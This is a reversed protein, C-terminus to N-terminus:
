FGLLIYSMANTYSSDIQDTGTVFRWFPIVVFEMTAVITMFAPASCWQANRLGNKLLFAGALLVFWVAMTGFAIFDSGGGSLVVHISWLSVPVGMGVILLAPWPLPDVRTAERLNTPM